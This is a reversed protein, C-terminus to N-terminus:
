KGKGYRKKQLKEISADLDALSHGKDTGDEMAKYTKDLGKVFEKDEWWAAAEEMEGELITYIAKLKKDDAVRIYSYLRNRISAADM